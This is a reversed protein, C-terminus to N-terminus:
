TAGVWEASLAEVQQLVMQGSGDQFDLPYGYKRLIRKMLMGLRARSSNGGISAPM